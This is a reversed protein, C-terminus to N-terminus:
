DRHNVSAIFHRSREAPAEGQMPRLAEAPVAQGEPVAQAGPDAKNNSNDAANKRRRKSPRISLVMAM